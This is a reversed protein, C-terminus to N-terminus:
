RSVMAELQHCADPWSVWKKAMQEMLQAAEKATILDSLLPEKLAKVFRVRDSTTVTAADPNDLRRLENKLFRLRAERASRRQAAGRAGKVIVYGATAGVLGVGVVWEPLTASVFTIGILSALKTLGLIKTAGVAGAV